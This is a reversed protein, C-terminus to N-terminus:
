IYVQPVQNCDIGVDGNGTVTFSGVADKAGDLRGQLLIGKFRDDANTAKVTVRVEQGARVNQVNATLTYPASERHAESHQPVNPNNANSQSPRGPLMSECTTLLVAASHHPDHHAAPAAITLTILAFVCLFRAFSSM